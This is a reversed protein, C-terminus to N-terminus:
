RRRPNFEDINTARRHHSSCCLIEGINAHHHIGVVIPRNDILNTFVSRQLLRCSCAERPVCKRVCRCIVCCNNTPKILDVIFTAILQRWGQVESELSNLRQSVSLIRMLDTGSISIERRCRSRATPPFCRDLVTSLCHTIEVDIVSFRRPAEHMLKLFWRRHHNLMGVGASHCASVRDILGVATRM